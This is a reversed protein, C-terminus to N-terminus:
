ERTKANTFDACWADRFVDSAPMDDSSIILYREGLPVSKEIVEELPLEPNPVVVAIGGIDNPYIIRHNSMITPIICFFRHAFKCM